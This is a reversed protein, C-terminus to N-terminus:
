KKEEYYNPKNLSNRARRSYSIGDFRSNNKRKSLKRSFGKSEELQELEFSEELRYPPIYYQTSLMEVAIIIALVNKANRVSNIKM